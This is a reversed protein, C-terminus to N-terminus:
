AALLTEKIESALGEIPSYSQHVFRLRGAFTSVGLTQRDAPLNTLMAPGWVARVAYPGYREAIPLAGLNSVVLSSQPGASFFARLKESRATPPFEASMRRMFERATELSRSQPLGQAIQCADHWISGTGGSAVEASHFGIFVGCADDEIGAIKRLDIPSVMRVTDQESAPLHRSAAACIAGHVTTENTRCRKLLRATEEQSFEATVIQPRLDECAAPVTPTVPMIRGCTDAHVASFGLLKEEIAPSFPLAQLREGALARMLDRLVCVGSMGDAIAHHFTLIIATTEPAYVVTLRLPAGAGSPMPKKLEREVTRVWDADNGVAVTELPLPADCRYFAAGSLADDVIRVRLAPHRKRVQNAAARLTDPRVWGDIEACLCFHVPWIQAYLHFFHEGAGLPRIFGPGVDGVSCPGVSCPQGLEM